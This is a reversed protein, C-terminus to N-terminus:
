SGSDGTFSGDFLATKRSLVVKFKAVHNPSIQVQAIRQLGKNKIPKSVVPLFFGPNQGPRLNSNIRVLAVVLGLATPPSGIAM